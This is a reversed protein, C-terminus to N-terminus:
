AVCVVFVILHFLIQDKCGACEYRADGAGLAFGGLGLPLNGELHGFAKGLGLGVAAHIVGGNRETGVGPEVVGIVEHDVFLYAVGGGDPLGHVVGEVPGLGTVQVEEGIMHVNPIDARQYHVGGLSGMRLKIILM